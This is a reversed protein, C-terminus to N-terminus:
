SCVSAAVLEAPGPYPLSLPFIKGSDVPLGNLLVKTIGRAQGLQTHSFMLYLRSTTDSVTSPVPWVLIPRFPATMTNGGNNSM